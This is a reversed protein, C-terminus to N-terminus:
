SGGSLDVQRTTVVRTWPGDPPADVFRWSVTLPGDGSLGLCGVVAPSLTIAPTHSPTRSGAVYAPDSSGPGTDEVQAYCRDNGMTVAVWRNKLFSFRRDGTRGIYGPDGAWALTTRDAESGLDNYPLGVYYPNERPAMATPFWDPAHRQGLDSRCGAGVTGVGDCGGYHAAWAEDWGSRLGQGGVRGRTVAGIRVLAAPVGTHEPYERQATVGPFRSAAGAPPPAVAHGPSGLVAGGLAVVLGAGLVAVVRRHPLRLALPHRRGPETSPPKEGGRPWPNLRPPRDAAVDEVWGVAVVIGTLVLWAVSYQALGGVWGAGELRASWPNSELLPTAAWIALNGWLYITMARTNMAAVLRGIFRSRGLVPRRPYLLLLVLVAGTCYLADAVPIDDIDWGTFPLSHTFAWALGGAMLAGGALLAPSRPLRVLHGQQHAFGLLWCGGFMGLHELTDATAPGAQLTGSVLLALLAFPVALTLRPHRRYIWLLAPSLLLLWLYTRVYWLPAVWNDGWASGPPQEVPVLWALAARLDVRSGASATVTWGHWAMLPVVVVGYLWLPPLLRRLRKRLVTLPRAGPRTLSVAVLSGGLAFMVGMSPYVVPLWAWGFTHYTVVRVLALARLADVYQDRHGPAGPQVPAKDSPRRQRPVGALLGNATPASM